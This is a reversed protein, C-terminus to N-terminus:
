FMHLLFYTPQNTQKNRAFSDSSTFKEINARRIECMAHKMRKITNIYSKFYKSNTM